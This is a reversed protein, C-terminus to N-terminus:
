GPTTCISTGDPGPDLLWTWTSVGPSGWVMSHPADMSHVLIGAKGNPSM